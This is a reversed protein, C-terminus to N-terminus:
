PFLSAAQAVLDLRPRRRKGLYRGVCPHRKRSSGSCQARRNWCIRKGPERVSACSLTSRNFLKIYPHEQCMNKLCQYPSNYYVLEDMYDGFFLRADYTGSLSILGDSLDPRRFVPEGRADRGHLLRDYLADGRRRLDADDM